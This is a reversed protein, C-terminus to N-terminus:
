YEIYIVLKSCFHLYKEKLKSDIQLYHNKVNLEWKRIVYKKINGNVFCYNRLKYNNLEMFYIIKMLSNLRNGYIEENILIRQSEFKKDSVGKCLRIIFDKYISYLRNRILSNFCKLITNTLEIHVLNRSVLFEYYSEKLVFKSWHKFHKIISKKYCIINLFKTLFHRLKLKCKENLIRSNEKIKTSLERM